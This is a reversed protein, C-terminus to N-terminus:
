TYSDPTKEGEHESILDDVRLDPDEGMVYDDSGWAILDKDRCTASCFARFEPM